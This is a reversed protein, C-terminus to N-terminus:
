APTNRFLLPSHYDAQNKLLKREDLQLELTSWKFVKVNRGGVKCVLREIELVLFSM